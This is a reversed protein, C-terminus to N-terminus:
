LLLLCAPKLRTLWVCSYSGMLHVSEGFSSLFAVYKKFAATIDSKKEQSIPTSGQHSVWPQHIACAVISFDRFSLRVGYKMIFNDKLVM